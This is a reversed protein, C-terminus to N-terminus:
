LTLRLYRHRFVCDLLARRQVCAVSCIVQFLCHVARCRGQDWMWLGGRNGEVRCEQLAAEGQGSVDIGPGRGGSISCAAMLARASQTVVVSDHKCDTINCSSMSVECRQMATVSPGGCKFFESRILVVQVLSPRPDSTLSPPSECLQPRRQQALSRM